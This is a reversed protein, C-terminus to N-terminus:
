FLAAVKQGDLVTDSMSFYRWSGYRGCPFIHKSHLYDTLGKVSQQYNHDYIPYGYRINNIDQVCFDDPVVLGSKKLDRKILGILREQDPMHNMPYALEAYLSARGLPALHPSFTHYFGVRYFSFEPEPFYVWNRLFEAKAKLGFNVNLISNWRLKGFLSRMKLPLDKIIHALEPLPITSIIYDFKEKGGSRLRIEKKSLDVEKVECGTHVNKVGNSLVETLAAIGGKKPYWFTHNYGTKEEKSGNYVQSSTPVPVFGRTWDATMEGLPYAWFKKNYPIFFHRAIGEGFTIKLWECFHASNKRSEQRRAKPFNTVCEEAIVAPLEYLYMQFPYHIYRENTYVWAKRKHEIINGALLSRIFNGTKKDRFHLLHGTRDFTFGNKKKSRCLGGIEDEKEFLQCYTGKEQLRRAASLGALGGGLIIIRRKTM